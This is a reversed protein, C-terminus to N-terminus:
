GYDHKPRPSPSADSWGCGRSYRLLLFAMRGSQPEAEECRITKPPPLEEFGFLALAADYKADEEEVRGWIELHRQDLWENNRDCLLCSPVKIGEKLHQYHPKYYRM